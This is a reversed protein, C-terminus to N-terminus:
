VYPLRKDHVCIDLCIPGASYHNTYHNVQSIHAIPPLKPGLGYLLGAMWLEYNCITVDIAPTASSASAGSEFDPVVRPIIARLCWDRRQKAKM